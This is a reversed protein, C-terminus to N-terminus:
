KDSCQAANHYRVKENLMGAKGGAYGTSSIVLSDNARGLIRREAEVFEHQVHGFWRWAFYIDNLGDDNDEAQAVGSPITALIENEDVAM